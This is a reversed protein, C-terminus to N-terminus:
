HCYNVSPCTYGNVCQATAGCPITCTDPVGLVTECLGGQGAETCAGATNRACGCSTDNGDSCARSNVFDLVAECRTSDEDIGCYSEATAGSLSVLDTPMLFYPRSCTKSFRRLCFGGPRAVGMFKMPVCRVDPDAQDGGICESDALCPGCLDITGVPTATCQESAPNCANGDCASENTATCQVCAGANCVGKGAISSCEADITCPKCADADCKSATADTCDSQQLCAVCAHNPKDCLPTASPCDPDDNCAVCTNSDTACAPTPAACQTADVCQVCTQSAADCAPTAGSCKGDCPAAGAAGGEGIAGSAGASAGGSSSGALGASGGSAVTGGVGGSGGSPACTGSSDCDTTSSCSLAFVTFGLAIGSAFRLYHITM